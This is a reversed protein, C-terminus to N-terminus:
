DRFAVQRVLALRLSAWQTDSPRFAGDAEGPSKEPRAVANGPGPEIAWFGVVVTAAVLLVGGLAVWLRNRRLRAILSSDPQSPM